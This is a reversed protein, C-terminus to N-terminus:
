KRREIVIIKREAHNHNLLRTVEDITVSTTALLDVEGQLVDEAVFDLELGSRGFSFRQIENRIPRTFAFLPGLDLESVGRVKKNYVEATEVASAADLVGAAICAAPNYMLAFPLEQRALPYAGHAIVHFPVEFTDFVVESKECKYVGVDLTLVGLANTDDDIKGGYRSFLNDFFAEVSKRDTFGKLRDYASKAHFWFDNIALNGLCGSGTQSAVMSLRVYRSISRGNGRIVPFNLDRECQRFLVKQNKAYKCSGYSTVLDSCLQGDKAIIVTSM